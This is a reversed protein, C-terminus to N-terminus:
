IAIRSSEKHQIYNHIRSGSTEILQDLDVNYTQIRRESSIFGNKHTVMVIQHGNASFAAAEVYKYLALEKLAKIRHQTNEDISWLMIDGLQNIAAIIKDEHYFKLAYIKGKIDPNTPECASHEILDNHVAGGEVPLSFISKSDKLHWLKVTGDESGSALFKGDDSFTIATINGHQGALTTWLEVNCNNRDRNLRWLSISNDSTTILIDNKLSFALSNIVQEYRIIFSSQIIGNRSYLKVEMEGNRAGAIVINEGSVQVDCLECKIPIENDIPIQLLEGSSRWFLVQGHTDVTTVIQNDESFRVRQVYTRTYGEFRNTLSWFKLTGDDSSSLLQSGNFRIRTINGKHGALKYLRPVDGFTDTTLADWINIIGNTHSSAVIKSDHSFAVAGISGDEEEGIDSSNKSKDLSWIRLKGDKSVSVLTAGDSSFDIDTIEGEHYADFEDFDLLRIDNSSSAQSAQGESIHYEKIVITDKKTKKHRSVFAIRQNKPSFAVAAVNHEHAINTLYQGGRGWFIINRDFGVSIFFTGDPSFNITHITGHHKKTDDQTKDFGHWGQSERRYLKILGDDGGTVLIEGDPSFALDYFREQNQECNILNGQWDWFCLKDFQGSVTAIVQAKQNCSFNNVPDGVDISNIEGCESLLQNFTILFEFEKYNTIKLKNLKNKQLLKGAEIIKVIADLRDNATFLRQSETTNLKVQNELSKREQERRKQISREVFKAEKQNFWSNESKLIKELQNLRDGDPLLLGSDQPNKAWDNTAATLRQRLVFGELEKDIWEKLRVWGKVLADHAPEIYEQGDADLGKVLLRAEVFRNIIKQVQKNKLEPYDLESAPVRRRALEGGTISVMRLMVDCITSESAEESVLENYAKDATQTLSRTVGGIEGYDAETITRDIRGKPEAKLYKLYLESLTFSLLPLAGPMQVVEDILDNVLKPSEFFLARQAAPEEIAQKFEERDMPTVFFRGHQWLNEKITDRIQPEFDSRLTIVIRLKDSLDSSALAKALLQLFYEREKDKCLTILEEFQDITLLLKISPNNKSWQKIITTLSSPSNQLEKILSNLTALINNKLNKLQQRESDSCLKEIQESYDLFLLLKTERSAVEWAKVLINIKKENENNLESKQEQKNKSNFINDLFNFQTLQTVLDVNKIPLIASALANIPLEGPRMPDLVYWQEQSTKEESILAPILGAKVLSSKGSGSLGLVVTLPHKSVKSLLGEKEKSGQILRKRGFFLQSDEKEFSALGKYPNTSEDLKLKELKKENFGPLEFIYEGKDHKKLHFLGPTQKETDDGLKNQLYTFLEHATIVGDDIIAQLSIDKKLKEPEAKLAKLLLDAFPSHRNKGVERTALRSLDAAEEDHAVSTIVQQAPFKIFRDYSQRYMKRSRTANRKLGAWLIRGAFCCDLIMLLHRCHLGTLADHLMQMSLWTSKDNQQSDQPMLYGAPKGDDSEETEEPFGHGAFYFLVRDSEEVKIREDGIQIIRNDLNKLLNSLNKRTAEGDLLRLVKYKYRKELVDALEKADNVASKLKPIPHIYLDIGIVIALSRDIKAM